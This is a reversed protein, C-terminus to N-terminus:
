TVGGTYVIQSVAFGLLQICTGFLMSTRGIGSLLYTDGVDLINISSFVMFLTILICLLFMMINMRYTVQQKRIAIRRKTNRRMQEKFSQLVVPDNDKYFVLANECFSDYQPGVSINLRLLAKDVQEGLGTVDNYFMEFLSRVRPDISNLSKSVAEVVGDEMNSSVLDEADMLAILRELTESRSIFFLIAHTICVLTLLVLIYMKVGLSITLLFATVVSACVILLLLSEVNTALRINLSILIDNMTTYYLFLPSYKRTHSDMNELHKRVLGFRRSLKKEIKARAKATMKTKQAKQVREVKHDQIFLGLEYSFVGAILGGVILITANILAVNM